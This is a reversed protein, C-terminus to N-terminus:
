NLLDFLLQCKQGQGQGKVKIVLIAPLV